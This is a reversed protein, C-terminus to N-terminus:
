LEDLSSVVRTGTIMKDIKRCPYFVAGLIEMRREIQDAKARHAEDEFLEATVILGIDKNSAGFSIYEKRMTAFAPNGEPSSKARIVLYASVYAALLLALFLGLRKPRM